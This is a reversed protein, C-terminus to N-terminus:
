KAEKQNEFTEKRFDEIIITFQEVINVLKESNNDSQFSNLVTDRFLDEFNSAVLHLKSQPMIDQLVEAMILSSKRIEERSYKKGLKDYLEKDKKM